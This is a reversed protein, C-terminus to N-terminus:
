YGPNQKYSMVGIITSPIPFLDYHAPISTGGEAVDGKWNWNYNGGAFKGHRVLDTRRCNEGYLERAREDLINAATMDAVTWATANARGRVYNVYTLAKSADGAGGVINAEAATLYIEALRIVPYDADAFTNAASPSEADNVTGDDNYAFNSFKMNAYGNDFGKIDPNEITFGHVSTRWLETRTDDCTGDANWAFKESFQQRANMCTWAANFNYDSASMLWTADATSNSTGAAMMFTSNGYSTLHESNQPIIWLIENVRSGSIGYADNNAGFLTKYHNALGSNQYGGSHRAIIEECKNWCKDYAPTGTFVGANLYFKALLADCAEKGVYGYAVSTNSGYAASIAELEAVVKEYVEARTSQAPATGSPVTEDSYGVNGFMDLLYFYSLGRLIRAQNCYEAVVEETVNDGMVYQGAQASRIFENCISIIVYLRSYTGYFIPNSASFNDTSLEYFGADSFQKWCYTDATLENLSFVARQFTGMGGDYGSIIPAGNAGDYSATALSQYCEALAQEITVKNATTVDPDEPMLDLDGTCSSVGLSLTLGLAVFIKNYKKM